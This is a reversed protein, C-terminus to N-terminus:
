FGLILPSFLISPLWVVLWSNDIWRNGMSEHLVDLVARLLPGVASAPHVFCVLVPTTARWLRFCRSNKPTEVQCCSGFLVCRSYSFVNYVRQNILFFRVYGKNMVMNTYTFWWLDEILTKWNGNGHTTIDARMIKTVFQQGKQKKDNSVDVVRAIFCTAISVIWWETSPNEWSDVPVVCGVFFGHIDRIRYGLNFIAIRPIDGFRPNSHSCCRVHISNSPDNSDKIRLYIHLDGSDHPTGRTVM